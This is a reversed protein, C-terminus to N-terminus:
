TWWSGSVADRDPLVVLEGVMSPVHSPIDCIFPFNGVTTAVFHAKTTAQAPLALAIHFAKLVFTHSEDEPNVFTITVTDGQYVTLSAPQFSYVDKDELLGGKAFGKRLFPYTSQQEKTLLPVTIITFSRTHPTYAGPTTATGSWLILLPLCSSLSMLSFWRKM